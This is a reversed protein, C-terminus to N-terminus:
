GRVPAFEVAAVRGGGRENGREATGETIRRQDAQWGVSRKRKRSAKGQQDRGEGASRRGKLSIEKKEGIEKM